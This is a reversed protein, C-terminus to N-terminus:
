VVFPQFRYVNYNILGSYDFIFQSIQGFLIYNDSKQTYKLKNEIEISM